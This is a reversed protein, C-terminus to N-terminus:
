SKSSDSDLNMGKNLSVANLLDGNLEFPFYFGSLIESQGESVGLRYRLKMYDLISGEYLRIKKSGKRNEGDGDDALKIYQGIDELRKGGLRTLLRYGLFNSGLRPDAVLKIDDSDIEKLANIRSDEYLDKSTFRSTPLM